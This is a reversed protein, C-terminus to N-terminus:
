SPHALQEIEASNSVEDFDGDTNTVTATVFDQTQAGADNSCIQLTKAIIKRNLKNSSRLATLFMTLIM